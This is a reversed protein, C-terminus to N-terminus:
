IEGQGGIKLLFARPERTYIRNQRASAAADRALAVKGAADMKKQDAENTIFCGSGAM